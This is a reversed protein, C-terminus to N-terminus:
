VSFGHHNEIAVTFVEEVLLTPGVPKHLLRLTGQASVVESFLNLLSNTLGGLNVINQKRVQHLLVDSIFELNLPEELDCHGYSM